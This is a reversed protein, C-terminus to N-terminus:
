VEVRFPDAPGPRVLKWIIEDYPKGDYLKFLIASHRHQRALMAFAKRDAPAADVIQRYAEQSAGEIEARQEEIKAIETRAWAQFPAPTGAFLRDIPPTGDKLMEWIRRPTIGTVIRHLRLYEERKLKLRLGGAFRIVVGEANDFLPDEVLVQAEELTKATYRRALPFGLTALSPADLDIEQGTELDFAALLVLDERGAYDVVIRYEPLIIEFCLTVKGLALIRDLTHAYTTRLIQTGRKAQYSTFSGRTAVAPLGDVDVYSLGLSGDVKEYAVFPEDPIAVEREGWNFFKEMPKAIITYDRRDVILGRCVLTEPTWYRDFQTKPTYNLITYPLEPHDRATIYNAAVLRRLESLDLLDKLKM